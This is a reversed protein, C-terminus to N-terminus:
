FNKKHFKILFQKQYFLKNFKDCCGHYNIEKQAKTKRPPDSQNAM